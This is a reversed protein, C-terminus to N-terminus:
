KAGADAGAEQKKGEAVARRLGHVVRVTCVQVSEDWNQSGGAVQQSQTSGSRALSQRRASSGGYGQTFQSGPGLAKDATMRRKAGTSILRRKFPGDIIQCLLDVDVLAALKLAQTRSDSPMAITQTHELALAFALSKELIKWAPLAPNSCLRTCEVVSFDLLQAVLDFLQGKQPISIDPLLAGRSRELMSWLRDQLKLAEDNLSNLFSLNKVRLAVHREKVRKAACKLQDRPSTQGNARPTKSPPPDDKKTKRTAM